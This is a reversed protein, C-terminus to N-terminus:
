WRHYYDALPEILHRDVAPISSRHALRDALELQQDVQGCTVLFTLASDVPDHPGTSENNFRLEISFLNEDKWLAM